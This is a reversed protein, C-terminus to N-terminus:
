GRVVVRRACSQDVFRDPSRRGPRYVAYIRYSGAARPDWDPYRFRGRRDIRVRAFTRQRSAGRAPLYTYRLAMVQGHLSRETHGRIDFAQDRGYRRREPFLPTRPRTSLTVHAGFPGRVVPRPPRIEQEGALTDAPGGGVVFAARYDTRRLPPGGTLFRAVLTATSHPALTVEGTLEWVGSGRGCVLRRAPRPVCRTGALQGAGELALPQRFCDPVAAFGLPRRPSGPDWAPQEVAVRFREEREGATMRLRYAVERTELFAIEGPTMGAEFAVDARAAAAPTAVTLVLALLAFRGLM